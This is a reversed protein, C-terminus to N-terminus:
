LPLCAASFTPFTAWVSPLHPQEPEQSPEQTLFECAALVKREKKGFTGNLQSGAGPGPGQQRYCPPEQFTKLPATLQQRVEETGSERLVLVGRRCPTHWSSQAGPIGHTHVHVYTHAKFLVQQVFPEQAPVPCQSHLGLPHLRTM